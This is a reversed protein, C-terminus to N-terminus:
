ENKLIEKVNVAFGAMDVAFARKPAYVVDWGVVKGEKVQPAEVYAAGALGSSARPSLFRSGVAWIGLREVRRIYLDFLRIDYTNDDDAFYVIAKRTANTFQRRIWGLALNRQAWGRAAAEM